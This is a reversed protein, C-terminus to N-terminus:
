EPPALWQLETEKHEELYRNSRLPWLCCPILLKSSVEVYSWWYSSGGEGLVGKFKTDLVRDVQCCAGSQLMCTNSNLSKRTQLEHWWLCMIFCLFTVYLVPMKNWTWNTIWMVCKQPYDNWVTTWMICKKPNDNWIISWMIYTKPNDNWITSWMIYKKPNDNWITIWM